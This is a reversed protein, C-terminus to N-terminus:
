IKIIKKLEQTQTESFRNKEFFEDISRYPRGNVIDTAKKEGIFPLAILDKLLATNVSVGQSGTSDEKLAYDTSSVRPIVIQQGDELALALNLESNIFNTDADATFGGSMELGQHVRSGVPLTYVGPKQVAGSIYVSLLHNSEEATNTLLELHDEQSRASSFFLISLQLFLLIMGLCGILGLLLFIKTIKKEPLRSYLEEFFSSSM